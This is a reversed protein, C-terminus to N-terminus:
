LNHVRVRFALLRLGCADILYYLVYVAGIIAISVTFVDAVYTYPALNFSSAISNNNNHMRTDCLEFIFKTGM